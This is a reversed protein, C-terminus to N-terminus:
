RPLSPIDVSRFGPLLPTLSGNPRSGAFGGGDM